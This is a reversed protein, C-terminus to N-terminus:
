IRRLREVVSDDMGIEDTVWDRGDVAPVVLPLVRLMVLFPKVLELQDSMRLFLLRSLPVPGFVNHLVILHNLVLRECLEGTTRYRTLAKKVYKIRKLDQEFEEDGVSQTNRYWRAAYLRWNKDTLQEPM